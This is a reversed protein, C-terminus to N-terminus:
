LMLKGERFRNLFSIPDKLESFNTGTNSSYVYYKLDDYNILEDIKKLVKATYSRLHKNKRCLCFTIKKNLVCGFM